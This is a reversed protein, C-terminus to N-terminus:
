LSYLESYKKKLYNLYPEVRLGDGTVSEVLESPTKRRGVQHVRTRLWQLLPSFNGQEILSDLDPIDTRIVEMFQAAYLNGLAYTPFYGMAGHSWHIDQLCGNADDPVDLGLYQKMKENWLAPTDEVQCDGEILALELEFRLIIHLNYTCEDAEVRIFSPQVANIARIIQEDTVSQLAAFRERLRPAYHTWFQPSRGIVNEWLRSQSEHIGLSIAEALPTRRDSELFGQEYLAHGGEHVSGTLASFLEREHLRTTIRVDALDFNTTFPHVSRDQRGADFDYGIDRLVEITFDWQTDVDWPQDVWGLDPQNPSEVIAKVLTSQEQALQAFVPKLTDVTMGREYENLLANYPTGEYGLYEAKQRLMEVMRKLVPQYASFDAQERATVWTQYAKSQLLSFEHVFAGPLKTENEYDYLAVEVAKAQDDSLADRQSSLSRLLGGFAPETFLRHALASLTAQQQARAEAGKPPMYTEQDWQLLSNTANLDLVEGMRRHFEELQSQLTTGTNM